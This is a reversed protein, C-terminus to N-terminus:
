EGEFYGVCFGELDGDNLGDCLGVFYGVVVNGELVGDDLGDLDGVGNGVEVRGERDGEIPGVM